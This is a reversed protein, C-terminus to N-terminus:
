YSKLTQKVVLRNVPLNFESFGDVANKTFYDKLKSVLIGYHKSSLILSAYFFGAVQNALINPKQKCTLVHRTITTESDSFIKKILKNLSKSSRIRPDGLELLGYNPLKKQVYQYIINHIQLYGKASYPDGDVIASFVGQKKLLRKITKLVTVVPDMLTLAWHCFIVDKSADKMFSLDQANAKYFSIDDNSFRNRALKLESDNMDVGFLNLDTSFRKKCLELLVGSGCALDLIDSHSSPDVTDLLLEYSNKGQIDCCSTAIEETFGTYRNHIIHLHDSLDKGNPTKGLYIKNIWSSNLNKYNTKFLM